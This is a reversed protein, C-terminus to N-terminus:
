LIMYVWIAIRGKKRKICMGKNYWIFAKRDFWIFAKRDFKAFRDSVWLGM